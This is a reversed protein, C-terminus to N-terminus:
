SKKALKVGINTAQLVTKADEAPKSVLAPWSKLNNQQLVV